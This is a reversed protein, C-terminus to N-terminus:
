PVGFPVVLDEKHRMKIESVANSAEQAATTVLQIDALSVANAALVVQPAAVGQPLAPGARFKHSSACAVAVRNSYQRAREMYEHQEMTQSDIASVDIVDSATQHLIRNLASQEDGTKQSQPASSSYNNIQRSDTGDANVPDELLRTRENPTRERSSNEEESSFCCGM